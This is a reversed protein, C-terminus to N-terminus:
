SRRGMMGLLAGREADTMSRFARRLEMEPSDPRIHLDGDECGYLDALMEVYDQKYPTEGAEIRWYSSADLGLHEAIEPQSRGSWERWERFCPRRRKRPPRSRPAM